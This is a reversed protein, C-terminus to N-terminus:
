HGHEMPARRANADGKGNSGPQRERRAARAVGRSGLGVGSLANSAGPCDAVSFPALVSVSSPPEVPVSFTSTTTSVPMVDTEAWAVYWTAVVPVPAAPATDGGAVASTGSLSIARAEAGLGLAGPSSMPYPIRSLARFRARNALPKLAAREANREPLASGPPM